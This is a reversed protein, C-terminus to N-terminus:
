IFNKIGCALINVENQTYEDASLDTIGAGMTKNVDLIFVNGQHIVYDFRGYDICLKDRLIKLEEPVQVREVDTVRNGFKVIPERAGFRGSSGMNGLFSWYRVYFLGDQKEPFFREVILNHNEWIDKPVQRISNFIPYDMPELWSIGKWSFDLDNTRKPVQRICNFIPYGMPKLWSIGKWSFDLTREPIGGYNFNTKIIVQGEYEDDITLMTASYRRRSIDLIKRNVVRSINDVVKLYSKPVITKDVHIIAIDCKPLKQTGFHNFVRYGFDEWRSILEDIIYKGENSDRVICISTM